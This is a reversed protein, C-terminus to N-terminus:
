RRRRRAIGALGLSGIAALGSGPITSVEFTLSGIIFLPKWVNPNYDPLHDFDISTGRQWFLPGSNIGNIDKIDKPGVTKLDNGSSLLTGEQSLSFAGGDTYNPTVFTIEYGTLILNTPGTLTMTFSNTYGAFDPWSKGIFLGDEDREFAMGDAVDPDFNAPEPGWYQSHATGGPNTFSLTYGDVTYTFSTAWQYFGLNTNTYNRLDFTVTTASAAGAILAAALVASGRVSRHVSM